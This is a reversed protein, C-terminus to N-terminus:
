FCLLGNFSLIYGAYNCLSKSYQTFWYVRFSQVLKYCKRNIGGTKLKDKKTKLIALVRQAAVTQVACHGSSWGSSRRIQLVSITIVAVRYIADRFSGYGQKALDDRVQGKKM